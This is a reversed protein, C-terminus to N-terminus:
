HDPSQGMGLIVRERGEQDVDAGLTKGKLSLPVYQAKQCVVM